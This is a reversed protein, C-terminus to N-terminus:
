LSAVTSGDINRTLVIADVQQEQMAHLVSETSSTSTIDVNTNAFIHALERDIFSTSDVVLIQRRKRDILEGVQSLFAELTEGTQVPKALLGQAGRKLGREPQDITSVIYVPIHRLAADGKLRDLVRWGDIDPLSIDLLIASPQFDGALAIAS